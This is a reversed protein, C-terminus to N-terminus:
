RGKGVELLRRLAALARHQLSKIAGEPKGMVTGVDANSLGGVFKLLLVQRQRDTLGRLALNLKELTMAREVAEEATSEPCAVDRDNLPLPTTKGRRFHDAAMNRAIRFLWASLPTGRYVFSGIREFAQLFVNAAMDEALQRHGLRHYLYAYLRPYHYQYIETWADSDLEKARAILIVEYAPEGARGNSTIKQKGVYTEVWM